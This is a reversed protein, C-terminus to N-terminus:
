PHFEYAGMDTAPGVLRAAGDLDTL